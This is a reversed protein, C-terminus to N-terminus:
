SAGSAQRGYALKLVAGAALLLLAAALSLVLGGHAGWREIVLAYAVPAAASALFSPALLRGVLAGYTRHDFLVLPLTGRTITSLGNGAGYLLAFAAAATVFGGAMLGGAALGGAALGAAFGLPLITLALLNLSLPHLRRGFLVEGLRASSQGIGRLSSLTVATGAALGLGAMLGIMHAAMASNLFSTVAVILAYLVAAALRPRTEPPSDQPRQSAAAAPGHRTAPIALHFPLTLLALAAYAVLAGRWGFHEALLHGLPWFATSALGGLLTIQAMPRRAETGGIRALAAFAADYLTCRMAVGLVIWAAYYPVVTEAFALGLCGVSGLLSGAVMVPRGGHRDILRGVLGSILGMVLLAASFGGQVLADSWGLSAAMAEGFGGILYYFLGWCFLQSLGLLLVTRPRIM